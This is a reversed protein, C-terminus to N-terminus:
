RYGHWWEKIREWLTPQESSMEVVRYAAISSWSRAIAPIPGSVDDVHRLKAMIWEGHKLPCEDGGHWEIWESM